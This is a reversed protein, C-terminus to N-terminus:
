KIREKKLASLKTRQRGRLENRTTSLPNKWVPITTPDVFVFEDEGIVEKEVEEIAEEIGEQRAQHLQSLFLTMIEQTKRIAWEISEDDREFKQNNFADFVKNYIVKEWDSKM